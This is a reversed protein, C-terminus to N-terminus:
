IASHTTIICFGGHLMAAASCSASFCLPMQSTHDHSVDVYIHATTGGPQTQLLVFSDNFYSYPMLGCPDIAGSDPLSDFNETNAFWQQPACQGLTDPAKNQGGLQSSVLSRVYSCVGLHQQACADQLHESTAHTSLIDLVNIGLEWHKGNTIRIFAKCSM